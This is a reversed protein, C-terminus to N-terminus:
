TKLSSRTTTMTRRVAAAAMTWRRRLMPSLHAPTHSIHFQYPQNQLQEKKEHTGNGYSLSFLVHLRSHVVRPRRRRSHVLLTPPPMTCCGASVMLAILLWASINNARWCLAQFHLFSIKRWLVALSSSSSARSRSLINHQKRRRLSFYKALNVTCVLCPSSTLQKFSKERRGKWNEIEEESSPKTSRDAAASIFKLNLKKENGIWGRRPQTTAGNCKSSKHHERKEIWTSFDDLLQFLQSQIIRKRTHANRLSTEEVRKERAKKKSKKNADDIVECDHGLSM